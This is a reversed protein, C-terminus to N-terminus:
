APPLSSNLNYKGANNRNFEEAKRNYAQAAEEATEFFGLHYRCGRFNIRAHFKQQNKNWYVGKYGTTNKPSLQKWQTNQELTVLELNCIRNDARKFNIHNIQQDQSLKIGYHQEWLVRHAGQQRGEWQVMAYGKSNIRTANKGDKTITGARTDFVLSTDHTVAPRRLVLNDISFDTQDGNAFFVHQTEPLTIIHHKEYIYRHLYVHKTGDLFFAYGGAKLSNWLIKHGDYTKM